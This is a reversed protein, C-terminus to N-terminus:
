DWERLAWRERAQSPCHNGYFSVLRTGEPLEDKRTEAHDRYSLFGDDKTWCPVNDFVSSAAHSIISQDTGMFASANNIAQQPNKEFEDYAFQLFGPEILMVSPNYVYGLKGISPSKWIRFPEHINIVDTLDGTIITDIDLQLLIDGLGYAFDYNLLSLRRYQKRMNIFDQPIPVTIIGAPMIRDTICYFHFPRRYHEHFNNALRTVHSETYKDGWLWTVVSLNKM